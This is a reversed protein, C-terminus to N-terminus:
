VVPLCVISLALSLVTDKYKILRNESEGGEEKMRFHFHIEVGTSQVLGREGHRKKRDSM